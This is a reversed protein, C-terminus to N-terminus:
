PRRQTQYPYPTILRMNPEPRACDRPMQEPLGEPSFCSRTLEENPIEDMDEVLAYNQATHQQFPLLSSGCGGISTSVYLESM